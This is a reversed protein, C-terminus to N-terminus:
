QGIKNFREALLELLVAFHQRQEVLLLLQDQAPLDGTQRVVEVADVRLAADNSGRALLAFLVLAAERASQFQRFGGAESNQERQQWGIIARQHVREHAFVVFQQNAHLLAGPLIMQQQAMAHFPHLLQNVRNEGSDARGSAIVGSM